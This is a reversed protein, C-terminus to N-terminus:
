GEDRRPRAEGPGAQGARGVAAHVGATGQVVGGVTQGRGLDGADAGEGGSEPRGLRAALCGGLLRAAFPLDDLLYRRALRRPETALRFLWELGAGRLWEPARPVAGAAFGLAAGCGLFWTGPLEDRLGAVLRDQRPFGLGAFVLKPRAAVVRARVREIGERTADFGYPPAHVGCVRLRPHRATLRDAAKLAVGPPGGLLYVPWGRRAALESLSWLLDAGTVRGPLPTGLLRAAWVLPMGDAVVLDAACVLERLAPDTAAARCIDVNPTVIRGGRGAALEAAVRQVAEAETLADVGVGGM